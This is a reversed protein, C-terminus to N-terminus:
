GRPDTVSERSIRTRTARDPSFLIALRNPDDGVFVQAGCGDCYAYQGAQDECPGFAGPRWSHFHVDEFDAYSM